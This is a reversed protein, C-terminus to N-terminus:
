NLEIRKGNLKIIGDKSMTLEAAGCRLTIKEGAMIMAQEGAVTSISTDSSVSVTKQSSMTMPGMSSLLKAGQVGESSDGTITEVNDGEVEKFYGAGQTADSAALLTKFAGFHTGAKHAMFSYLAAMGAGMGIRLSYRHGVSQSENVGILTSKTIQVVEHASLDTVSFRSGGINEAKDNEVAINLDKQAHVYIEERNNKDEFRLENFGTGQHTDTKFTSRTKNGPLPYPVDNKGNYVCGTVLPKDPDGELFEVVVEMGIRPIVMGGWGKGAWNQSVRCRMSYRKDLDWHFHVKIRGYEDCDIEGDGVVVATQPGQVKPIATKREPALPATSPMFLYSGTYTPEGNQTTGYGSSVYRHHATLCLAEDIGPVKDGTIEVAYGARLSACDGTARHRPDQGREQDIRLRAVDKGPNQALYDGPYDYSEISGEAYPAISDRDTEMAANPTKFNYDTLRIKGTTLRQSPRMEWFHEAEKSRNGNDAAQYERAGGPLKEHSIANDTLVLTHSGANHQFHYSIGFRELLRTAFDLDSERYQVTYELTPYSGTLRKEVAPTGLGTYPAFLEDLIEVVTKKHYIQQKRRLGLLWLWPRVTFSYRWGNEGPGLLEGETIIGDYQTEPLDFSKLGVTAHTSILANFDIDDTKALAEIRYEFLGNLHEHGDFRLLNLVDNGLVTTLAGMRADQKFIANM